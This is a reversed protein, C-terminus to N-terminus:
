SSTPRGERLPTLLFSVVALENMPNRRRGERLPTLLFRCPPLSRSCSAGLRGERLPTLLFKFDFVVYARAGETAGGAPAHTSIIRNPLALAAIQRGERLPTLLFLYPLSGTYNNAVTAGGAPAHTSIM